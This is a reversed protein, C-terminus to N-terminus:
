SHEDLQGVLAIQILHISVMCAQLDHMSVFWAM